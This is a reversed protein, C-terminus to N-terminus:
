PVTISLSLIWHVSLYMISCRKIIKQYVHSIRRSKMHKYWFSAYILFVHLNLVYLFTLLKAIPWTFMGVWELLLCLSHSIFTLICIFSVTEVIHRNSEYLKVSMLM